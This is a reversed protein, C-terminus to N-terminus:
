SASLVARECRPRPGLSASWHVLAVSSETSHHKPSNAVHHEVSRNDLDVPQLPPETLCDRESPDAELDSGALNNTQESM